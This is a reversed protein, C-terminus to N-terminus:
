TLHSTGIGVKAGEACMGLASSSYNTEIDIRARCARLVQTRTRHVDCFGDSLARAATASHKM